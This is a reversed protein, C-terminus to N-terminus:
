LIRADVWTGSRESIQQLTLPVYTLATAGSASVFAAGALLSLLTDKAKSMPVMRRVHYEPTPSYQGEGAPVSLPRRQNAAPHM